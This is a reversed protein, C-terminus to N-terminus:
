RTHLEKYFWTGSRSIQARGLVNAPSPLDTATVAIRFGLHEYLGLAHRERADVFGFWVGVGDARHRQEATAVLARAYGRGRARPAVALHELLKTEAILRMAAGVDALMTAVGHAIGIPAHSNIAAITPVGSRIQLAVGTPDLTIRLAATGMVRPSVDSIHTAFFQGVKRLAADTAIDEIAPPENM